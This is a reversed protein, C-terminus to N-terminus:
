LAANVICVGLLVIRHGPVSTRRGRDANRPLVPIHEHRVGHVMFVKFVSVATGTHGPLTRQIVKQRATAAHHLACLRGTACERQHQGMFCGLEGSTLCLLEATGRHAATCERHTAGMAVHVERRGAPYQISDHREGNCVSASDNGASDLCCLAGSQLPCNQLM